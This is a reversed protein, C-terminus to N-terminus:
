YVCHAAIVARVDGNGCCKFRKSFVILEIDHQNAQLVRYFGLQFRM